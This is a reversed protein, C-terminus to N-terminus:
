PVCGPVSDYSPTFILWPRAPAPLAFRCAGLLQERAQTGVLAAGVADRANIALAGARGAVNRGAYRLFQCQDVDATQLARRTIHFSAAARGALWGAAGQAAIFSMGALVTHADLGAAPTAASAAGAVV